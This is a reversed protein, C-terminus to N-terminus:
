SYDIRIGVSLQSMLRSNSFLLNNKSTLFIVERYFREFYCASIAINIFLESDILTSFGNFSSAYLLLYSNM